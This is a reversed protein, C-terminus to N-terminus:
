KGERVKFREIFPACTRSILLYAGYGGLAGLTNLWLDDIDTCRESFLQGTEATLSCLFGILAARKVSPARYCLGYLFGIPMFIAINGIFNIRLPTHNGRVLELATYVIVKFPIFNIDSLSPPRWQESWVTQVLIYICFGALLIAGVEHYATTSIGQGRMRGVAFFRWVLLAPLACLIIPLIQSIYEIMYEM